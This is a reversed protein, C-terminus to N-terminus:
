PLTLRQHPTLALRGNQLAAQIHIMIEGATLQTYYVGFLSHDSFSVVEDPGATLLQALGEITLLGDLDSVVSVIAELPNQSETTENPTEPKPNETKPQGAAEEPLTCPGASSPKTSSEARGIVIDIVAQGYQELKVPGVGSINALADLTTPQQVAIAELVKNAFVVYAPIDQAKAQETRWARLTELLDPAPSAALQADDTQAPIAPPDDKKSELNGTEAHPEVEVATQPRSPHPPQNPLTVKPRRGGTTALKGDTLLADIINLIAKQSFHSLRGYYSHNAFTELWEAQSGNLFLALGTRGLTGGLKAAADLIIADPAADVSVETASSESPQDDDIAPNERPLEPHAALVCKIQDFSIDEPLAAKLPTLQAATGVTEVAGLVQAEIEPPVIESLDIEGAAILKALHNYITQEALHRKEAIQTPTLGDQFFGLTIQTTPIKPTQSPRPAPADQIDALGPISVPLAARAELVKAGAPTLGLVPLKGGSIRLYRAQILNDILAILQAQTLTNLKGYFKHRTYGFKEMKESQSGTLLQALRHRGLPRDQEQFTRATELVILPFWDQPTVAKPLDEPADAAHNDCCNQSRPPSADGFYSLLFQRRCTTLHVYNLMTDLLKYRIQARQEVANIRQKLANDDALPMIKWHSYGSQSSLHFIANAQELESLTVRVKVPHLGTIQALESVSFHVENETAAQDLRTYIQHLDDLAPTDSNIMWEQLRQDDPTFFLVCEAPQGDRGARGAEQYYAEVNAPMNYHIVARVDAKDVGMGFANTAVVIKIRDAMFDNQVQHRIHRDLGAHYARAPVKLANNIYGATEDTNRRTAAYVIASGTEIKKLHAHLTQLKTREDPAYMVRFTLNPRNFGTVTTEVNAIGLIKVIDKQVAPTATATTALLTPQGMAQWTPGIQLYDPRFDHGWQSICHAEDVALLSIKTQALARTFPRSRLREPAIYLLKVHGELVARTRRHVETNPLSSNIYTAPVGAEVLSDVQDKMLAILPSIVLTLGPQLMAPLQYALSKGSGTPMVLLTHRGNLVRQVTEEQGERFHDFGFYQRLAQQPTLM